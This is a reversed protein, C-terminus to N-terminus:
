AVRTQRENLRGDASHAGLLSPIMVRALAAARSELIPVARAPKSANRLRPPADVARGRQLLSGAPSATMGRCTCRTSIARKSSAIERAITGWFLVRHQYMRPIAFYGFLTATVFVDDASLSLELVYGTLFGPVRRFRLGDGDLRDDWTLAQRM